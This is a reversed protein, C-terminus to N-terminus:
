SALMCQPALFKISHTAPIRNIANLLPPVMFMYATRQRRIDPAHSHASDPRGAPDFKEAMVNRGGGFWIPTFLYGSGHSIPALHLCSDGPEVPPYLSLCTRGAALGAGLPIRFVGHKGAGGGGSM